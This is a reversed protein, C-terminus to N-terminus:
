SVGVASGLRGDASPAHWGIWGNLHLDDAWANTAAMDSRHGQDESGLALHILRSAAGSYGAIDFPLRLDPLGYLEAVHHAQAANMAMTARYITPPTFAVVEPLFSPMARYVEETLSRRQISRIGPFRDHIWQEIRLDAPFSTLQTCVGRYWIDFLEVIAHEPLGRVLLTAIEPAIQEVAHRRNDAAAVAFLREEAPVRHLRALHGVEHAVLHDLVREQGRAVHIEYPRKPQRPRILMARCDGAISPVRKLVPDRGALRRALQLAQKGDPGLQRALRETM